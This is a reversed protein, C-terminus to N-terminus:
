IIINNIIFEYNPNEDYKLNKIYKLIIIINNPIENNFIIEEKLQIIKEINLDLLNLWTLKNLLFLIIYIISELDDRRSPQNMRHINLSVFLPTGILNKIRKNSIHKGDDNYYRKCFGLDILYLIDKKNNLGFVFNEPKIDRHLLGKKHLFEIRNVMQIGINMVKEKDINENLKKYVFLSIDLLNMVLYNTNLYMGFWKITIFGEAIGLYQYLKAENKLSKQEIDNMEKKIAILENTRINIGKFIEGFKGEGIKEIIKYRNALIM